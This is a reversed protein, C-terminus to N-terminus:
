EGESMFYAFRSGAVITVLTLVFANIHWQISAGPLVLCILGYLFIFILSALWLWSFWTFFKWIM